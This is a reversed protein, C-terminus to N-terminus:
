WNPHSARFQQLQADVKKALDSLAERAKKRGYIVEDRATALQDTFYPTIPSTAPPVMHNEKLMEIWTKMLPVQKVFNDDFAVAKVPPVNNEEVNWQLVAKPGAMWTLFDMSADPNPAGKPLVFVNGGGTQGTGYPVGSATPPYAVGYQLKPAREPLTIPTYEGMAEMAMQEAYFPTQDGTFLKTFSTVRDPGGLLRAYKAHWDLMAINADSVVTWKDNAPDYFSGGWLATWMLTDGTIWPCFGIQKLAGASDKVTLQAALNDLEDMTKPPKEPDLGAKQFLSKNWALLNFDFEQLFGWLHGHFHIMLWVVPFYDEEKIGMSTQYADLPVIFGQSAWDVIPTYEYTMIAGPSQGGAIATVYKAYHNDDPVITDKATVKTSQKNYEDVLEAIIKKGLKDTAPNWFDVETKAGGGAAAQAPAPTATPAATPQTPAAATPAPAQTPAAASTPGAPAATPSAPPSSACAALAAGAGGVVLLRLFTRRSPGRPSTPQM